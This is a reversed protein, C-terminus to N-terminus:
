DVEGAGSGHGSFDGSDRFGDREVAEVVDRPGGVDQDGVGAEAGDPADVGSCAFVFDGDLVGGEGVDWLYDVEADIAELDAVACDVEGVACLSGEPFDGDVLVAFGNSWHLDDRACRRGIGVRWRRGIAGRRRAEIVEAEVLM